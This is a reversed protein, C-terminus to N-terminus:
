LGGPLRPKKGDVQILISEDVEIIEFRNGDREYVEGSLFRIVSSNVRLVMEIISNSVDRRLELVQMPGTPLEGLERARYIGSEPTTLQPSTHPGSLLYLGHVGTGDEHQSLLSLNRGDDMSLVVEIMQLHPVAPHSWQVEGSQFSELGANDLVWTGNDSLAMECGTWSIVVQGDLDSLSHLITDEM